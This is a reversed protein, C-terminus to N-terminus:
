ANNVSARDGAFAIGLASLDDTAHVAVVGVSSDDHHTAVRRTLGFGDGRQRSDGFDDGVFTFDGVQQPAKADHINGVADRAQVVSMASVHFDLVTTQETATVADDRLDARLHKRSWLRFDKIFDPYENVTSEAFDYQGADVKAM